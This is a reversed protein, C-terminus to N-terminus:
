ARPQAAGPPTTREHTTKGRHKAKDDRAAIRRRSVLLSGCRWANAADITEMSKIGVRGARRNGSAAVRGLSTKDCGVRMKRACRRNVNKNLPAVRNRTQPVVRVTIHVVM